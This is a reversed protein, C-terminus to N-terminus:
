RQSLKWIELHPKQMDISIKDQTNPKEHISAANKSLVQLPTAVEQRFILLCFYIRCKMQLYSISM